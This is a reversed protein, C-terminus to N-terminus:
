AKLSQMEPKFYIRTFGNLNIIIKINEQKGERHEFLSQAEINNIEQVPSM